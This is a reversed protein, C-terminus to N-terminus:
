SAGFGVRVGVLGSIGPTGFGFVEQYQDDLLNEGRAFVEVGDHVQYSVALNVLTFGELTVTRTALPFYSQFVTDNQEGNYRVTLNAAAARDLVRFAYNANFSAIHKARRILTNGAGDEAATFTYAGILQLGALPEASAAVEVGHIRSAGPLNVATNGSGQILNEIRNSFYTVDVVVQDGLLSQEVGADWGFSEEATLNPNGTFTPTAGFLEFLTPNKVGQGASAHLRTGTDDHVYAATARYTTEDEFLADNDDRRVSGSLFVRDWLGLRYEGVYGHNVVEVTNPGFFASNTFQEDREREAAFTVTHEAGALDPTSFFVNTQYDLKVKAGESTFTKAGTGDFFDTANDAYGIRAIHEWAGDFLTLTAKALGYRERSQSRDQSDIANIVVAGADSQLDSEVVTGVVEVELFELPKAGAKVRVTTNDYADAESNGDNEDAASIGDTVFRNATGSLYFRESGYGLTVMGDRTAFSGAEARGSVTFGPAPTKTIINIVGGIADSGYLASQPGRLVEIRAIETNLLNAFSFESAAAPNNVEIGDILVLTQNGEAGRIRVQTLAGVPGTRGMAVGPVDRLVDSVIRVQRQELEEETIVTVASGAERAPLPVRSASVVTEPLQEVPEDAAAPTVAGAVVMTIVWLETIGQFRRCFGHFPFPVRRISM